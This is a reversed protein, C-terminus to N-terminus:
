AAHLLPPGLEDHRACKEPEGEAGGSLRQHSQGCRRRARLHGRDPFPRGPRRDSKGANSGPGRAAAGATKVDVTLLSLSQKAEAIGPFDKALQLARELALRAPEEEGMMYHTMGLHFQIDADAPMKGASEEILSLAAPYNHQKYLIWGLTDAAHPEYPNLDRARRAMEYAKELQGLHESYLWALNNLAPGFRPNVTLLKEYSERAAAYDKQQDHIVGTLMLATIDKPNKTLVERLNALAKGHQNSGVYLQALMFYATSADPELEIAKRLTTEAQNTDHQALLIKTLLLLPGSRKPNKAMQAEVRERAAAYQKDILDLNVLQEAAPLYDPVLVLAHEFADRAESRKNQQLLILGTLWPAQPNAPFQKELQHYVDLADDLNGQGRYADALLLRAQPIDPHQQILQKLSVIAPSLNGKRINIGALLVVADAFDPALTLAQNLSAIAKGTDGGALDALGLQYHVKPSQPYTSRMREFETIAKDNEGKALSLRGSLLMAEPQTADRALVRAVFAAGEDFKKEAAAIEALWLWAPLYDPTERTMETLLRKASALDGTQIKFQAYQLRNPSRPPSLEAAKKLAEEAQPLNKQAWFLSGLATYVASSKPDLTQARKFAAEAEPLHRQKLEMFGLALQVPATNQAPLNQLRRLIEDLDAPKVATEALLLPAEADQPNRELIFVAEDRAEKVRGTSRYLAGLKLRVTLNDPMLERGKILFPIARGVRGQDVYILGLRSIAQPNGTEIRLVNLYEIEARDYQGSNFDRNAQELLRVKRAQRSCSNGALALLGAVLGTLVIRTLKRM